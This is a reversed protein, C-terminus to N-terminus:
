INGICVQFKGDFVITAMFPWSHPVAEGGGVVRSNQADWFGGIFNTGIDGSFINGDCYTDSPILCDRCGAKICKQFRKKM